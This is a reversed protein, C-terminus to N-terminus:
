GEVFAKPSGDIVSGLSTSKRKDRLSRFEVSGLRDPCERQVYFKLVDLLNDFDLVRLSYGAKVLSVLSGTKGSKADGLLLLKVLASSHHDALSPM